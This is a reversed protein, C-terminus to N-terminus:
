NIIKLNAGNVVRDHFQPVYAVMWVQALKVNFLYLAFRGNQRVITIKSDKYKGDVM